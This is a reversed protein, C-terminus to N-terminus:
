SDHFRWHLLKSALLSPSHFCTTFDSSTQRWFFAWVLEALAWLFSFFPILSSRSRYIHMGWTREGAAKSIRRMDRGAHLLTPGNGVLAGRPSLIGVSGVFSLVLVVKKKSRREIHRRALEYFRRVTRTDDQLPRREADPRKAVSGSWGSASASKWL